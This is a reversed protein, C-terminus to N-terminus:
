KTDKKPRNKKAKSISNKSSSDDVLTDSPKVESVDNCLKKLTETDAVLNYTRKSKIFEAFQRITEMEEDSFNDGDFHAAITQPPENKVTYVGPISPELSSDRILDASQIHLIDAIKDLVELRPMSKKSLWMSITSRSVGLKDALESYSMSESELYKTLNDIFIENISRLPM